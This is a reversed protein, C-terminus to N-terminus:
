SGVLLEIAANFRGEDCEDLGSVEEMLGALGDVRDLLDMEKLFTGVQVVDILHRNNAFAMMVGAMIAAHKPTTFSAPRLGRLGRETSEPSLMMWVLAITEAELRTM